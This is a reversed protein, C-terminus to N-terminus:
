IKRMIGEKRGNTLILISLDGEKKAQKNPSRPGRGGFLLLNRGRKRGERVDWEGVVKKAGLQGKPDGVWGFVNMKGEAVDGDVRWKGMWKEMKEVLLKNMGDM